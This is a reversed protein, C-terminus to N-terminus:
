VSTTKCHLDDIKGSNDCATSKCTELRVGQSSYLFDPSLAPLASGGRNNYMVVGREEERGRDWTASIPCSELDTDVEELPCLARRYDVDADNISWRERQERGGRSHKSKASPLPSDLNKVMNKWLDCQDVEHTINFSKQHILSSVNVSYGDISVPETTVAPVELLSYDSGRSEVDTTPPKSNEPPKKWCPKCYLSDPIPDDMLELDHKSFMFGLLWRGIM